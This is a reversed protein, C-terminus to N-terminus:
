EKIMRRKRVSDRVKMFLGNYYDDDELWGEGNIPETLMRHNKLYRTKINPNYNYWPGAYYTAYPHGNDQPSENTVTKKKKGTPKSYIYRVGKNSMVKKLYKHRKWESRKHIRHVVDTPEIVYSNNM